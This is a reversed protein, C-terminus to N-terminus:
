KSKFHFPFVTNWIEKWEKDTLDITQELIGSGDRKGRVSNVEIDVTGLTDLVFNIVNEPVDHGVLAFYSKLAKQAASRAKNVKEALEKQKLEAAKEKIIRDQANHIENELAKYLDKPDGGNAIHSYIDKENLM